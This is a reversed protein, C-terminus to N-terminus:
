FIITYAIAALNTIWAASAARALWGQSDFLEVICASHWDLVDIVKQIFTKM